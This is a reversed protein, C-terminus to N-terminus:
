KSDEFTAERPTLPRLNAGNATDASLEEFSAEKPTAPAWESNGKTSEESFGTFGNEDFTAIVPPMPALEDSTEITIIIRIENKVSTGREKTSTPNAALVLSTFLVLLITLSFFATKM